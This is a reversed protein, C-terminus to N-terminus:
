SSVFSHFKLFRSFLMKIVKTNLPYFISLLRYDFTDFYTLYEYSQVCNLSCQDDSCSSTKLRFFAIIDLIFHLFISIQFRSERLIMITPCSMKLRLKIKAVSTPSLRFKQHFYRIDHVGFILMIKM